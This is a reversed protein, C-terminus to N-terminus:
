FSCLLVMCVYRYLDCVWTFFGLAPVIAVLCSHSTYKTSLGESLTGTPFFHVALIM